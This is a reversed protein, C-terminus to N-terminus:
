ARSSSATSKMSFCHRCWMMKETRARASLGSLPPPPFILFYHPGPVFQPTMELARTKGSEKEASMFAMRPSTDWCDMLHAHAIWLAHAVLALESPYIVFRRLYNEVLDLPGYHGPAVRPNGRRIEDDNLREVETTNLNHLSFTM